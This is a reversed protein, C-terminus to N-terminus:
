FGHDVLYVDFILTSYAPISSSNESGYGLAQPVYLRWYDGRHMNMLATTWGTIVGSCLFKTTPAWERTTANLEGYYCEDFVKGQPHQPTPILRGRYHVKVSDTFVPSMELQGVELVQAYVYEQNNYNSGLGTDENRKYTKLVHWQGVEDGKNARAVQAISDVFAYNREEWRDEFEGVEKTESCAMLVLGLCAVMIWFSKKM